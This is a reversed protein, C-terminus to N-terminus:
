DCLNMICRYASRIKECLELCDKEVDRGKLIENYEIVFATLISSFRKFKGFNGQYVAGYRKRYIRSIESLLPAYQTDIDDPLVLICVAYDSLFYIRAFDIEKANLECFRDFIRQDIKKAFSLNESGYVKEKLIEKELLDDDGVVSLVRSQFPLRIIGSRMFQPAKEFLEFYVEKLCSPELDSNYIFLNKEFPNAISVGVVRRKSSDVFSFVYFNNEAGVTSLLVHKHYQDLKEKYFELQEFAPETQLNEYCRVLKEFPGLGKV